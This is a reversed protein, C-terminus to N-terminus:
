VPVINCTEIIIRFFFYFFFFFTTNFNYEFIKQNELSFFFKPPPIIKVLSKPLNIVHSAIKLGAM